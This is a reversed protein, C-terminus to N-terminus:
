ENHSHPTESHTTALRSCMCTQPLHTVQSLALLDLLQFSDMYTASESAGRYLVVAHYFRGRQACTTCFLALAGRITMSEDVFTVYSCFLLSLDLFVFTICMCACACLSGWVGRGKGTCAATYM